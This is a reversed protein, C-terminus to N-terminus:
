VLSVWLLLPFQIKSRLPKKKVPGHSHFSEGTLTRDADHDKEARPYIGQYLAFSGGEGIAFTLLFTPSWRPRFSVKKPVLSSRFSLSLSMITLGLRGTTDCTRVYKVLPLLTLSWIIASVGGIVDEESPVGGSSPWIGNLVYLPSTGIDSYIVGPM